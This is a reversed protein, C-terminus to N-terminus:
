ATEKELQGRLWPLAEDWSDIRADAHGSTHACDIHPALMPEGCLHLTTIESITERASRHHQALDDIFIAKSPRYEALINQLAPGKPGQNTFVRANLGHGALQERRMEQRKDVLNTLIVVDAEEALTNIGEIAGPIPNQRHMETDFFGGLMKWIQEPALVEGSDQWRLAQSFDNGSMRFEVGQTEALWDKFPAVMYLLVEDCDSIILPRSM